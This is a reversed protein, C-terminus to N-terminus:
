QKGVFARGLGEDSRIKSVPNRDRSFYQILQNIQNEADKEELLRFYYVSGAPVAKMMPKPQYKKIDFGGFSLFRGVACTELQVKVGIDPVTGCMDDHKDIWDPIVGHNFIAPTSLYLKFRTPNEWESPSTVRISKPAKRLRAVKNEAGLRMFDGEALDLNNINVWFSTTAYKAKGEMRVMGVRYLAGERSTNTNRDRGIGIKPELTSYQSIKELDSYEFTKEGNLYASLFDGHIRFSGLDDAKEYGQPSCLLSPFPNSSTVNLEKELRVAKEKKKNGIMDLPCLFLSKMVWAYPMSLLPLMGPQRNLTM